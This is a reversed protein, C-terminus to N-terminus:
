KHVALAHLISQLHREDSLLLSFVSRKQRTARHAASNEQQKDLYSSRLHVAKPGTSGLSRLRPVIPVDDTFQQGRAQPIEM